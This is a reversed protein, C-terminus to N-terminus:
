NVGACLLLRGFLKPMAAPSKRTASPGPGLVAIMSSKLSAGSDDMNMALNNMM